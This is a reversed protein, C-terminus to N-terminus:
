TLVAGFAVAAPSAPVLGLGPDICLRDVRVLRALLHGVGELQYGLSEPLARSGIVQVLLTFYRDQMIATALLLFLLVWFALQRRWWVRWGSREITLEWLLLAAPLTVAAEKTALAAVFALPALGLWLAPRRARVGGVYLLLASLVFFTVLSSSRGSVYTVAETQLPHLAFLGAAVLAGTELPAFPWARARHAATFTRMVLEVNVLHLIVNVLHFVFPSGGGLTWDLAYSLKLLPRLGHGAGAWWAGLSQVAPDRTVVGHDDFQFPTGLAPAYAIVALLFLLGRPRARLTGLLDALRRMLPGRALVGEPVAAASSGAWCCSSARSSATPFWSQSPPRSACSRRGPAPWM